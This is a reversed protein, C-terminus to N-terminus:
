VWTAISARKWTDTAVCVYVYGSDWAIDGTTGTAGASAPTKSTDINIHDHSVILKGSIQLWQNAKTANAKGIILSDSLEGAENTRSLPDILVWTDTGTLFDGSYAGMFIGGTPGTGARYGIGIKYDAAGGTHGAERGIFIGNDGTANYGTYYGIGIGSNGSHNRLAFAGVGVM